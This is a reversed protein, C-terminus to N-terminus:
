TTAGIDFCRMGLAKVLSDESQFLTFHNINYDNLDQLIQGRKTIPLTIKILTDQPRDRVSFIATHPCFSHVRRQRSWRTALTYWAKQAFHRPDTSVYPGQVSIMPYGGQMKKRSNASEIYVYIAAREAKVKDSFAFYAAIFPSETWDLLPSPFQHHRLYVLYEYDPLYVRMSDQTANIKKKLEGFPTTNWRKGTFSEIENVYSTANFVYQEVDFSETSARELTTQLEWESDAQGRFLLQRMQRYYKGDALKTVSPGYRKRINLILPRFKSWSTLDYTETVKTKNGLSIVEPPQPSRAFASLSSTM